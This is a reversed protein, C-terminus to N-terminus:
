EEGCAPALQEWTKELAEALSRTQGIVSMFNSDGKWRPVIHFHLHTPIGAGSVSGQNIGINFGDPHMVKKVAKKAKIVLAFMEAREDDTLYEIEAVERYPVALIHGPNYPFLNLVLYCFKGRYLILAARDDNMKPLRIFPNDHGKDGDSPSTVYNM